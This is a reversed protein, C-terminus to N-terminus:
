PLELVPSSVRHQLTSWACNPSTVDLRRESRNAPISQFMLFIDKEIGMDTLLSPRAELGYVRSSTLLFLAQLGIENCECSVALRMRREFEQPSVHLGAAVALAQSLVLARKNNSKDLMQEASCTLVLAKELWGRRWAIIAETLLVVGSHGSVGVDMALQVMERCPALDFEGRRYDIIRLHWRARLEFSRLRSDRTLARAKRAATEAADLEGEEIWASSLNLWAFVKDCHHSSLPFVQQHCRAADAYEGRCYALRARARLLMLKRSGSESSLELWCRTRLVEAALADAGSRAAIELFIEFRWRELREDHFPGALIVLEAADALRGELAAAFGDLLAGLRVVNRDGDRVNSGWLKRLQRKADRLIDIDRTHLGSLTIKTSLDYIGEPALDRAVLAYVRGHAVAATKSEVSASAGHQAREAIRERRVRSAVRAVINVIERCAAPREHKCYDRLAKGHRPLLNREGFITEKWGKFRRALVPMLQVDDDEHRRVALALERQCHKSAVFHKSGLLLVIDARALQDFIEERWQKGARVQRDYFVDIDGREIYEQFSYQLM